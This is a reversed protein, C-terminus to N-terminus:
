VGWGPLNYRSYITFVRFAMIEIGMGERGANWSLETEAGSLDCIYRICAQVKANTSKLKWRQDLFWRSYAAFWTYRSSRVFPIWLVVNERKFVGCCRM